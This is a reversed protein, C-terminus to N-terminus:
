VLLTCFFYVVSSCLVYVLAFEVYMVYCMVCCIVVCWLLVMCLYGFVFVVVAADM